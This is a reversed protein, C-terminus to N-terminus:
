AKNKLMGRETFWEVTSQLTQKLPRPDYGLERRAKECSLMKHYSLARLSEFTYLPRTDTIRSYLSIFPVGIRALWIPSTMSTRKVGTIEEVLQGLQAVSCYHGGLIYHEGTRGKQEAALLGAVVDRVDVWSFGGEVLAPLTGSSMKIIAEGLASPKFDNPGIIGTPNLIVADLGREVGALIRRQGEAKSKDYTSGSSKTWPVLPRAEDIVQDVPFPSIAHISSTHILRRVGCQLAAEVVNAPGETNIRGMLRGPDTELPIIAALHFVVEAGKFCEVLSDRDLVDASCLELDLGKLSEDGEFGRREVARVDRGQQLLARVLNAGVHGSAGTVVTKM